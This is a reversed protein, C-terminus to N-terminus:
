RAGKASNCPRCLVRLNDLEDGGGNARATVHDITLDDTAGCEPCVFGDRAFVALRTAMPLRHDPRHAVDVEAYHVATGYRREILVEVEALVEVRARYPDLGTDILEAFRALVAAAGTDSPAPLTM